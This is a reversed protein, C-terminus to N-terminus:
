LAWFRRSFRAVRYHLVYISFHSNICHVTTYALEFASWRSNWRDSTMFWFNCLFPSCFTNFKALNKAEGPNLILCCKEVEPSLAWYQLVYQSVVPYWLTVFHVLKLTLNSFHESPRWVVGGRVKFRCHQRQCCTDAPASSMIDRSRRDGPYSLPIFHRGIVTASILSLCRCLCVPAFVAEKRERERQRWGTTLLGITSSHGRTRKM